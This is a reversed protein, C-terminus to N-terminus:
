TKNASFRKDKLQKIEPRFLHLPAKPAGNRHRAVTAPLCCDTAPANM